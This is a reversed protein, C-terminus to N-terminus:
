CRCSGRGRGRRGGRASWCWISRRRRPDPGGRFVAAGFSERARKGRGRKWFFPVRTKKLPRPPTTSFPSALRKSPRPRQSFPSSFPSALRKSTDLPCQRSFPRLDKNHSHPTAAFPVCAGWKGALLSAGKQRREALLSADKQWGCGSFIRTGKKL